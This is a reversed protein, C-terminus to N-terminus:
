ESVLSRRATVSLVNLQFSLLRNTYIIKMLKHSRRGTEFSVKNKLRSHAFGANDEKVFVILRVPDMTIKHLYSEIGTAPCVCQCKNYNYALRNHEESTEPTELMRINQQVNMFAVPNHLPVNNEEVARLYM